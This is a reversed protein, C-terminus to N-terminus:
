LPHNGHAQGVAPFFRRLQAEEKLVFLVCSVTRFCQGSQGTRNTRNISWARRSCARRANWLRRRRLDPRGASFAGPRTMGSYASADLGPRLNACLRISCRRWGCWSILRNRTPVRGARPGLKARLVKAIDLMWMFEGAAIFRQGAAEPSTMARLHADVVDRVDVVCFGLEPTGALSGNLMRAIVQVSGLGDGTLVPGFVGSPLVTTLLGSAGQASAFDWAARESLVKSQRYANIGPAQPDTWLTEDTVSDPSYMAPSCAATSSTMIVRKVGANLAARLVRLAGERAPQILTNADRPSNGGLPSAVHWVFDCGKVAADWGGDEVLDARFFTLMDGLNAGSGVAARVAAEKAPDRLTTRVQYGRRLLEVISWGAVYGTGGTVLVTETM